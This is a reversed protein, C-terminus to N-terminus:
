SLGRMYAVQRTVWGPMSPFPPLDVRHYTPDALCRSHQGLFQIHRNLRGFDRQMVRPVLFLHSSNLPSEVWASLATSIAQRAVTPSIAWLCDQKIM